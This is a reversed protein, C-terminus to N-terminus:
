EKSALLSFALPVTPKDAPLHWLDDDAKQMSSYRQWPLRYHEHLFSIQLGAEQTGCVFEELSHRWEYCTSHQIATAVGTYTTEAEYSEPVENTSYSQVVELREGDANEELMGAVPHDDAIYLRGGPKLLAAANRIWLKADPIWCFIGWTAYVLDFTSKMLQNVQHVDGEIFDASLHSEAALQRAFSIANSSFDLGTVKAGRRALSLTDLGFHCQLHLIDLGKVDGIEANEIPGLTDAGKQFEEVRYFGNEDARHILARDDWNRRNAELARNLDATM